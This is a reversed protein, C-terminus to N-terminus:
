NKQSNGQKSTVLVDWFEPCGPVVPESISTQGNLLLELGNQDEANFAVHSHLEPREKMLKLKFSSGAVFYREHKLFSFLKFPSGFNNIFNVAM